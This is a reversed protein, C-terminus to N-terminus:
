PSVHARCARHESIGQMSPLFKAVVFIVAWVITLLNLSSAILDDHDWWSRTPCLENNWARAVLALLIARVVLIIWWSEFMDKSNHGYIIHGYRM